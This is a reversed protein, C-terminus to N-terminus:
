NEQERKRFKHVSFMLIIIISIATITLKLLRNRTEIPIKHGSGYYLM